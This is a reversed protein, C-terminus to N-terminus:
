EEKQTIHKIESLYAAATPSLPRSKNTICGIELSIRCDSLRLAEKDSYYETHDYARRNHVGVTFADTNGLIEYLTARDKVTIMQRIRSLELQDWVPDMSYHIDRYIAFPYQLLESMSIATRGDKCLPHGKRVIVAADEEALRSYELNNKQFMTLLIKKRAPSLILLGLEAEQNRIMDVIEQFAGEIFSFEYPEERHFRCFDTFVTNAFRLYQSAVRFTLPPAKELSLCFENLMKFHRFAPQAFSLFERGFPTLTVGNGNRVFLPTGLEKEFQKLSQSLNPQSLYM